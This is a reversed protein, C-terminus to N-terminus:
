PMVAQLADRLVQRAEGQPYGNADWVDGILNSALILDGVAVRAKELDLRLSCDTDLGSAAYDMAELVDVTQLSM